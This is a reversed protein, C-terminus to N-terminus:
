CRSSVSSSSFRSRSPPIFACAGKYPGIANSTQVRWGRNIEIGGDDRQWVVRFSVIRDPESLQELVRAQTFATLDKEITIVDHVVEEVAQHFDNEGPSRERLRQMFSETLDARDPM